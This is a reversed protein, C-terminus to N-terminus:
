RHMKYQHYLFHHRIQLPEQLQLDQMVPLSYQVPGRSNNNENYPYYFLYKGEVMTHNITWESGDFTWPQNTSAWEVVQYKQDLTKNAGPVYQDIIASGVMDGTEFGYSIAAGPEGASLRSEVGGFNMKFNENLAVRQAQNANETVIDDATCAAFIAPLALATLLHKTKM